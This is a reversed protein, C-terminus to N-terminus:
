AADEEDGLSTIGEEEDDDATEINIQIAEIWEALEEENAAQPSPPLPTLARAGRGAEGRARAV